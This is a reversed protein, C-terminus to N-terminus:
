CIGLVPNVETKSSSCALVRDKGILVTLHSEYEGMEDVLCWVVRKPETRGGGKPGHGGLWAM